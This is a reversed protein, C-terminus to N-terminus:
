SLGFYRPVYSCIPEYYVDYKINSPPSSFKEKLIDNLKQSRAKNEEIFLFRVEQFQPLLIHNVATQMAVVPSGLEDGEYIGPGAFGDLYILRKEWRSIIPFWAGLYVKLIEHKAKTHPSIKWITSGNDSM